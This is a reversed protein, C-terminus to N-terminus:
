QNFLRYRSELFAITEDHNRYIQPYGKHILIWKDESQSLKWHEDKHTSIIHYVNQSDIKCIFGMKKASQIVKDIPSSM